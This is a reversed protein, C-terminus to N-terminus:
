ATLSFREDGVGRDLVSAALARRSPQEMKRLLAAVQNAITRESRGRAAAIAKNTWGLRVLALVDREAATLRPDQEPSPGVALLRAVLQVLRTRTGVGLKLAAGALAKSVSSPTIGLAYAIMKGTLGRASLETAHTELSTLARLRSARNTEIVAYHRGVGREEREVLGWEGAVLASWADLAQEDRGTRSARCREVQKVHASLRARSEAKTSAGQAHHLRGNTGLVAVVETPQVRVRLGAEMHLAVQTLVRRERADIVIPDAYPAGISLSYDDAIAVLGLTDAAGQDAVFRLLAPHLSEGLAARIHSVPQPCRCLPDLAPGPLMPTVSTMYRELEPSPSAVALVDYHHARRRVLGLNLANATFLPAAAKAIQEVWARDDGQGNHAAEVVRFAAEPRAILRTAM